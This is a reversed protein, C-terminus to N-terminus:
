KLVMRIIESIIKDVVGLFLSIFVLTILVIYTSTKLEEKTPWSVKKLESISQKIFEVLRKM